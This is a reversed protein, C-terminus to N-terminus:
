DAYIKNLRDVIIKGRDLTEKYNIVQRSVNAHAEDARVAVWALGFMSRLFGGVAAVVIPLGTTGLAGGIGAGYTAGGVLGSLLNKEFEPEKQVMHTINDNFSTLFVEFESKWYEFNYEEEQIIKDCEDITKICEDATKQLRKLQKNLKELRDTKVGINQLDDRIKEYAVFHDQFLKKSEIIESRLHDLQKKHRKIEHYRCGVTESQDIDIEMLAQRLFGEAAEDKMSSIDYGKNQLFQQVFMSDTFNSGRRLAENLNSRTTAIEGQKWEEWENTWFKVNVFWSEERKLNAKLKDQDSVITQNRVEWDDLLRELRNVSDIAKNEETASSYRSEEREHREKVRKIAQQLEELTPNEGNQLWMFIMECKRDAIRHYYAKIDNIDRKAVGLELGIDEWHICYQLEPLDVLIALDSVTLTDCNDAM